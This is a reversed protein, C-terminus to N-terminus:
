ITFLDERRHALAPLSTRVREAHSLDLDTVVVGVADLNGQAM